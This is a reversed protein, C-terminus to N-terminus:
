NLTFALISGPHALAQTPAGADDATRGTPDTAFYFTRQDPHVAVDRYRNTTKFVEVPPEVASRGDPALALRYVVGRLMSLVLLSDNWAPIGRGRLHVDLGGPAITGGGAMRLDDATPFTFFTRLPPMFRPHSWATEQQVPVSSPTAGRGPLSACPEPSSASFNAYVYIRDDRFGAVHPWGYNGGAEILNVEDDTEPGHESSYLRGGPGVALGLPNRHGYSFVHSRVGGLVPNDAPISGDLEIRLIKGVYLSWDRAAVAAATPLEQARIPRCRNQLFNNGQDGITLYLRRDAGVVLRGGVHDNHAPLGRLLDTPEILTGKARDFRYRRVALKPAVEAGPAEDYTFALYVFDSGSGRLLDPHLALGLLGDQIISQYVEPLTLLVIKTGDGPNIRVVRKGVRETVWLWGDPGHVIEWPSELGSAVVRMAFREKSRIAAPGQAGLAVFALGAAAVTVLGARMAKVRRSTEV